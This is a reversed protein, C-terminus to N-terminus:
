RFRYGPKLECRYVKTQDRNIRSNCQAWSLFLDPGLPFVIGEGNVDAEITVGEALPPLTFNLAQGFVVPYSRRTM